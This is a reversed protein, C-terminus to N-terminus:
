EEVRWFFVVAGRFGGNSSVLPMASAEVDHTNDSGVTRITVRHHAPRGRRLTITLPMEDFPIPVGRDDFPGYRSGWEEWPMKGAEEFRQGLLQGAAENFFILVGHIDVLLAPTSLSSMLNRALILELPQQEVEAV